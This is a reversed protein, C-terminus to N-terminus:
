QVPDEDSSTKLEELRSTLFSDLEADKLKEFRHTSETKQTPKGQTRDLVKEAASVATMPNIMQSVLAAAAHAEYKKFIQDASMGNLLDERVAKLIKSQYDRFIKADILGIASAEASNTSRHRRKPSKM